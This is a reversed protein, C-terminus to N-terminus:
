ASRPSCALDVRQRLWSQVVARDDFFFVRNAIIQYNQRGKGTILVADGPQAAALTTEIARKRDPEVRVRGPQLFGALLDDLIQNPDEDRPNSTTLTIRDALGAAVQALLQRELRDGGGEASLVCHVRGGAVAKLALLAEKVAHPTRASDIRVDFDQGEDVRELRGAVTAVSELGAVVDDGPVGLARALTAAATAAAAARPGILPLRAQLERDFGHLTLTLGTADAQSVRGWVDLNRDLSDPNMGFAAREAELNVGGLIEAHPDDANVAVVGGAVVQRVLRAITTRRDKSFSDPFGPLDGSDAALLGHLEVGAFAQSEIASCPAELIVATCGSAASEALLQSIAAPAPAFGGRVQPGRLSRSHLNDPHDWDAGLPRMRAGDHFGLASILGTREGAAALIARLYLAALTRGLIGAVAITAVRRSPDGALAQCMRGYAAAGDDVVVQLRGAAETPREVVVGAAGRRLAEAIYDHGDYGLSPRRAAVFVQGPELRRHDDSCGTVQWDAAGVFRGQPFLARLSVSHMGSRRSSRDVFWRAM